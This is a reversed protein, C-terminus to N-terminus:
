PFLLNRVTFRVVSGKLVLLVESSMLVIIGLLSWTELWSSKGVVRAENASAKQGWERGHKQGWTKSKWLALEQALWTWVMDSGKLEGQVAEWVGWVPIELLGDWAAGSWLLFDKLLLGRGGCAHSNQSKSQSWARVTWGVESGKLLSTRYLLWQLSPACQVAEVISGEGTLFILLATSASYIFSQIGTGLDSIIWHQRSGTLESLYVQGGGRNAAILWLWWEQHGWLFSVWWWPDCNLTVTNAV